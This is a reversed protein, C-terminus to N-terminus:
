GEIKAIDIATKLSVPSFQEPTVRTWSEPTKGGDVAMLEVLSDTTFDVGAIVATEDPLIPDSYWFIVPATKTKMCVDAIDLLIFM